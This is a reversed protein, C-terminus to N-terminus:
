VGVVVGVPVGVTPRSERPRGRGRSWGDAAVWSSSWSRSELRRGRGVRVVVVEVGVVTRSERPRGRSRDGVM